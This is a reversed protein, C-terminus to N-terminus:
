SAASAPGGPRRTGGPGRPWSRRRWIPSRRSRMLRMGALTALLLALSLVGCGTNSPHAVSGSEDDLPHGEPSGGVPVPESAPERAQPPGAERGRGPKAIVVFVISGIPVDQAYVVAAYEGGDVVPNRRTNFNAIYHPPDETDDFRLTRDSLEFGYTVVGGGVAPGSVELRVDHQEMIVNGEPDELHFKIPLTRGNKLTFNPNTIPPEFVARVPCADGFALSLARNVDPDSALWNQILGDHLYNTLALVIPGQDIAFQSADWWWGAHAELCERIDADIEDDPNQDESWLLQAINRHYSDPFGFLNNWLGLDFYYHRLAAITEDALFDISSAAGYVALTGNVRNPSDPLDELFCAIAGADDLGDCEGAPAAGFAKYRRSADECATLGFSIGDFTDFPGTVSPHVCFAHNAWLAKRANEWWNTGGVDCRLQALPLWLNAFQYTFASGPFSQLLTHGGFSGEVRAFSTMVSLPLRKQPEPAALGLVAILLIEDTTYDWTFIRETGNEITSAVYGTGSPHPVVFGPSSEPAWALYVQEPQADTRLLFPWNVRSLIEDAHETIQAEQEPTYGNAETMAQKCVIVGLLCLTTDVSSLESGSVFEDEEDHEVKRAGTRSDLFHYFFGEVGIQGVQAPPPKGPVDVFGMPALPPEALTSLTREALEFALDRSILGTEAAAAWAALGFGTGSITALDSFSLRDLVLGSDPHVAHLFYALNTERFYELVAEDPSSEDIPPGAVDADILAIGDIYFTGGQPNFFNELVFVLEKARTADPVFQNYSWAENNALNLDLAIERWETSADDIRVYTYATYNFPDDDPRAEKIEVKVNFVENSDGSGRVFFRLCEWSSLDLVFETFDSRGLWSNFFGVFGESLEAFEVKLAAQSGPMNVTGDTAFSLDVRDGTGTSDLKGYSGGFQTHLKNQEDYNVVTTVLGDSCAVPEDTHLTIHDFRMWGTRIEDIGDVVLKLEDVDARDFGSPWPISWVISQWTDAAELFTSATAFGVEDDFDFFFVRIAVDASSGRVWMGIRDVDSLDENLGNESANTGIEASPFGPDQGNDVDWQLYLSATPSAPSGDLSSIPEIGPFEGVPVGSWNYWNGFYFWLRADDMRDWPREEGTGTVPRIDDTCFTVGSGPVNEIVLSISGVESLDCGALPFSVTQWQDAQIPPGLVQCIRPDFAPGRLELKLRTGAAGVVFVDTRLETFGEWNELPFRKSRLLALGATGAGVDVRFCRRGEVEVFGSDAIPNGWSEAIWEHTDIADWVVSSAAADSLAGGQLVVGLIAAAIKGREKSCM